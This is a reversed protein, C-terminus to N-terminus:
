SLATILMGGRLTGTTTTILSLGTATTSAVWLYSQGQVINASLATSSGNVIDGISLTGSLPPSLNISGGAVVSYTNSGAIATYLALNITISTALFTLPQTVTFQAFMRTVIANAAAIWGSDLVSGIGVTLPIEGGVISIGDFGSSVGIIAVTGVNGGPGTTTMAIPSESTFTLLEFSSSM